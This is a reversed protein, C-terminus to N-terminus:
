ELDDHDRRFHQEGDARIKDSGASHYISQDTDYSNSKEAKKSSLRIFRECRQYLTMLPIQKHSSFIQNTIDTHKGDVLISIMQVSYPYTTKYAVSLRRKDTKIPLTLFLLDDITRFQLKELINEPLTHITNIIESPLKKENEVRDRQSNPSDYIMNTRPFKYHHCLEPITADYKISRRIPSLGPIVKLPCRHPQGNQADSYIFPHIQIKIKLHNANNSTDKLRRQSFSFGWIDQITRMYRYGSVDNQTKRKADVSALNDPEAFTLLIQCMRHYDNKTAIKNTSRIDGLSLGYIKLKHHCHHTGLLNLSYKEVLYQNTKKLFAIDQCFYAYQHIANPGSPTVLMIVPRGGHSFLGYFEGGSEINGFSDAQGCMQELESEWIFLFPSNPKKSNNNSCCVAEPM